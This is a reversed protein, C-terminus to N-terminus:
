SSKVPLSEKLERRLQERTQKRRETKKSEFVKGPPALQKRVQKLGPPIKRKVAASL